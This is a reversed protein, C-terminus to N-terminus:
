AVHSTAIYGIKRFNLDYINGHQWNKLHPSVIITLSLDESEDSAYTCLSSDIGMRM